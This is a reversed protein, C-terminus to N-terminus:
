VQQRRRQSCPRPNGQTDTVIDVVPVARLTPRVHYRGSPYLFNTFGEYYSINTSAVDTHVGAIAGTAANEIDEWAEVIQGLLTVDWARETDDLYSAVMGPLYVRSHGGRYRRGVKRQLVMATGAPVPQETHGGTTSAGFNFTPATSSDLATAIVNTLEITDSVLPALDAIWSGAAATAIATVEALTLSSGVSYGLHFANVFPKTGDILGALVVKAAKPVSPLAPM